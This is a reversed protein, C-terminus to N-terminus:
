KQFRGDDYLKLSDMLRFCEAELEVYEKRLDDVKRAYFDVELLIFDTRDIVHLLKEQTKKCAKKLKRLIRSESRVINYLYNNKVHEAM